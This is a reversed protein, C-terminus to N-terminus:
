SLSPLVIPQCRGLLVGCDNSSGSILSINVVAPTAKIELHLELRQYTRQTTPDAVTQMAGSLSDQPIAALDYGISVVQHSDDNEPDQEAASVIVTVEGAQSGGPVLKRVLRVTKTVSDEPTIMDGKSLFWEVQHQVRSVGDFYDRYRQKNTLVYPALKKSVVVGLHYPCAVIAQPIESGIGLGMVVAGRAVASWSDYGRLLQCRYATTMEHIRRFLYENQSFGGSLFVTRVKLRQRDSMFLQRVFLNKIGQVSAEFMAEIDECSLILGGHRIGRAPNDDVHSMASPLSLHYDLLPPGDVNQGKFSFKIPQFRDLLMREGPRIEFFDHMASGHKEQAGNVGLLQAHLQSGLRQPLFGHLFSKDILNAGYPGGSPPTVRTFKLGPELEDVRYTVLDVTGGGADVVIFCEKVRLGLDDVQDHAKASRVIYNAGAEPETTFRIQGPIFSIDRFTFKMADVVARFTIGKARNDWVAPYTIILEIPFQMLTLPDKVSEIDRRVQELVEKLYDNVVDAPTRILHRPVEAHRKNPGFQLKDSEGLMGKLTRLASLRSPEELRLKTWRIVYASDDIGFGWDHGSSASYTFASPVKDGINGAWHQVVHIDDVQPVHGAGQTLIWAVGTFTTGYDVAIVYRPHDSISPDLSSISALDDTVTDSM